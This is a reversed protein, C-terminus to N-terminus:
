GSRGIRRMTGNAGPPVLPAQLLLGPPAAGLPRAVQRAYPEREGIYRAIFTGHSVFRVAFDIARGCGCRRRRLRGAEDLLRLQKDLPVDRKAADDLLFEEVAGYRRGFSAAFEAAIGAHLSLAAEAAHHMQHKFYSYLSSDLVAAGLAAPEKGSLVPYAPVFEPLFEGVRERAPLEVPERTFSLYFGDLNVIAPLLVKQNEALRYAILISDSPIPPAM